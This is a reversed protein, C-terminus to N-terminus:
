AAWTNVNSFVVILTFVVIFWRLVVKFGCYFWRSGHHFWRLVVKFGRYFWRSGHHFKSSVVKCTWRNFIDVTDGAHLFQLLCIYMLQTINFYACTLLGRVCNVFIAFACHVPM